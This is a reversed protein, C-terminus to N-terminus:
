SSEGTRGFRRSIRGATKGAKRAAAPMEAAAAGSVRGLQRALVRGSSARREPGDSEFARAEIAGETGAPSPVTRTAIADRLLIVGVAVGVVSAFVDLRVHAARVILPSVLLLAAVVGDLVRHVLRPMPRRTRGRGATALVALLLYGGASDLVYYDAGHGHTGAILLGVGLAADVILHALWGM